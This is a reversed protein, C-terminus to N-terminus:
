ERSKLIEEREISASLSEFVYSKCRARSIAVYLLHLDMNGNKYHNNDTVLIIDNELGKFKRISSFTIGDVLNNISYECIKYDKIKSAISDQFHVRGLITIQRPNVKENKILINLKKIVKQLEDEEDEYIEYINEESNVDTYISNTSTNAIKDLEQQVELANRVNTKVELETVKGGMAEIYSLFEQQYVSTDYVGQYIFDGFFYYSGRAIHGKLLQSVLILYAATFDQAEDVIITDYQIPEIALIKLAYKPIIEKYFWSINNRDETKILSFEESKKEFYDSISFVDINDFDRVQCKLYDTLLLNYTILAVKSNIKSAKRKAMEVALLTKGTGAPGHVIASDSYQLKDLVEYQENTLEILKEKDNNIKTQLSAVSKYNGGLLRKINQIERDSPDRFRSFQKVQIARQKYYDSLKRIYTFFDDNFRADFVQDISYSISKWSFNTEPFAVGYGFYPYSIGHDQLYKMISHRNKDAQSFPDHIKNKIGYRNKSYWEGDVVGIEEGGKVEVVFCGLLPALIIFDAEGEFQTIHNEIRLAHFVIWNKMRDDSKIINFLKKEASPAERSIFYPILEAM